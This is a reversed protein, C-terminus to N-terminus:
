KIRLDYGGSELRKAITELSRESVICGDETRVQQASSRLSVRLQEFRRRDLKRIGALAYAKTQPNDTAYLKEFAGLAANPPQAVIVRFDVEGESTTGAFGIGGFAFVKATAIRNIADSFSRQAYTSPALLLLLAIASRAELIVAL